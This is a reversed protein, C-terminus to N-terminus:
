SRFLPAARRGVGFAFGLPRESTMGAVEALFRYATGAVGGVTGAVHDQLGEILLADGAVHTEEIFEVHQIQQERGVTMRCANDGILDIAAVEVDEM